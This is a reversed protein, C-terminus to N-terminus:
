YSIIIKGSGQNGGSAPITVTGNNIAPGFFSGGGGGGGAPWTNNAVNDGMAGGAGAGSGFGGGGGGGGAGQGPCAGSVSGSGGDGGIASFTPDPNSSPLDGPAGCGCQGQGPNLQGFAPQNTSVLWFGGGGGLAICNTPSVNTAEGNDGAGDALVGADGGGGAIVASLGAESSGGGGGGGGAVMVRDGLGMSGYRVDSAGGGGGGSNSQVVGGNGGGNWGGTGGAGGAVGIGGVFLYVTDGLSTDYPLDGGSYGGLGGGGPNSGAGAGGQAGWVEISVADVCQPFVFFQSSGTFNYEISDTPVPIVTLVVQESATCGDNDTVTLTYLTTVTPSAIPNADTSSSLGTAPSWDYTYSLSGTATPNGGLVYSVGACFTTDSGADIALKNGIVRITDSYITCGAVVSQARYWATDLVVPTVCLSIGNQGSLDSFTMGDTSEQWQTTADSSDLDICFDEGPCVVEEIVQGQAAGHFLLGCALAFFAIKISKITSKM